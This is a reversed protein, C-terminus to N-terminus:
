HFDHSISGLELPNPLPFVRKALIHVVDDVNQMQGEVMVWPHTLIDVRQEAFLDPMFVRQAIRLLAIQVNCVYRM